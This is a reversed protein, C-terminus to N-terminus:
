FKAASKECKGHHDVDNRQYNRKVFGLARFALSVRDVGYTDHRTRGESVGSFQTGELTVESLEVGDVSMTKAQPDIKVTYSPAGGYGSTRECVLTVESAHASALVGMAGALLIKRVQAVSM